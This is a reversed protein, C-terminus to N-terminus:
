NENRLEELRHMLEEDEMSPDKVKPPHVISSVAQKKPEQVGAGGGQYYNIYYNNQM